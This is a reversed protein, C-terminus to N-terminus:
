GANGADAGANCARAAADESACAQNTATQDTKGDAGCVQHDGICRLWAQNLTGCTPDTTILRCTDAPFPPDNPCKSVLNDCPFASASPGGSDSSSSCGGVIVLVGVLLFRAAKRM